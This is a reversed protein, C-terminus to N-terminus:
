RSYFMQLRLRINETYLDDIERDAYFGKQVNRIFVYFECVAVLRDRCYQDIAAWDDSEDLRFRYLLSGQQDAPRGCASCQQHHNTNITMTKQSEEDLQEIFCPQRSLYENMKKVSLRSHPGFRLCPEVDEQQCVKMYMFQNLKKFPTNPSARVFERFAELQIQDISMQKGNDGNGSNDDHQQHQPLQEIRERLEQLQSQEAILHEQTHRLQQELLYRQRKEEAVMGNAEEFLRTSLEELEHEVLAKEHQVDAVREIQAVYKRNLTHIDQQLREFAEDKAKLETRLQE